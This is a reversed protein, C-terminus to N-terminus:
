NYKKIFITCFHKTTTTIKFSVWPLLAIETVIKFIFEIRLRFNIIISFYRYLKYYIHVIFYLNQISLQILPFFCLSVCSTYLPLYKTPFSFCIPTTSLLWKISFLKIKFSYILEISCKVVLGHIVKLVTINFNGDKLKLTTLFVNLSLLIKFEIIM